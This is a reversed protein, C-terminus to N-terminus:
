IRGTLHTRYSMEKSMNENNQRRRFRMANCKKQLTWEQVSFQTTEMYSIQIDGSCKSIFFLSKHGKCRNLVTGKFKSQQRVLFILCDKVYM